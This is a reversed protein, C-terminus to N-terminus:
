REELWEEISAHAVETDLRSLLESAEAEHRPDNIAEYELFELRERSDDPDVFRWAHSGSRRVIRALETWQMRYQEEREEPVRRRICLLRREERSSM